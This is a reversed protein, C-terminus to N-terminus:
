LNTNAHLRRILEGVVKITEEDEDSFLEPYDQLLSENLDMLEKLWQIDPRSLM